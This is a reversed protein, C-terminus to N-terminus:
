LGDSTGGRIGQILKGEDVVAWLGDVLPPAARKFVDVQYASCACSFVM